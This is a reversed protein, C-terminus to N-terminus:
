KILKVIKNNKLDMNLFSDNRINNIFFFFFVRVNEPIKKGM